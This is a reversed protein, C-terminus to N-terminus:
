KKPYVQRGEFWTSEVNTKFIDQKNQKELEFLDQDLMVFDAYKGVEISGHDKEIGLSSAGGITLANIAESVTLLEKTNFPDVDFQIPIQGTVSVGIINVVSGLLDEGCPADTSSSVPVGADILSKMPFSSWYIDAPMLSLYYNLYMPNSGFHWILNAAIGINNQACRAIDADSINRVHTLSNRVKLQGATPSSIYADIVSECAKDGFAHTQISLGKANAAAVISNLEEQQWIINGHKKDEALGPTLYEGSIWGTGSDTVGDAFLKIGNAQVHGKSYLQNLENAHDIHKTILAPVSGGKPLGWYYSRIAYYGAINVTLENREDLENLYKYAKGDDLANILADLYSTFGRKNLETVGLKCAERYQEDTLLSEMSHELVWFVVEDTVYGSAIKSPTGDLNQVAVVDGGRVQMVIEGLDNILGAKKLATRNCLANHGGEDMLVVPNGESVAEIEEAYNKTSNKQVEQNSWGFSLFPGPNTAMKGRITSGILTSYPEKYGPMMRAVGDLGVFHGHGETCGPIVLGKGTFDVVQTKGEKVYKAIDAKTGVGVFKGDKVAFAEAMSGAKDATFVKGYVVMDAETSLPTPENKKKCGALLVVALLLPFIINRM